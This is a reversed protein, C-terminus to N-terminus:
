NAGMRERIATIDPMAPIAGRKECCLAAAAAAFTLYGEFNQTTHEDLTKGSQIVQYLFSGLFVDGAGTTDVADCPAAPIQTIGQPTAALAGDAGFTVLVCRVGQALLAKAAARPDPHGTLLETEEDSIKIIDALGIASRMGQVADNQSRWLAPRYNPDYSIIAGAARAAKVAHFTATRAPEDTLSLSGFHFIKTSNVIDMDLEPVDITTDAGPKRAFSFKREAGDLSVFALTTFVDASSVVGKVDVGKARLVERLFDGHMDAGVKGIFAVSLGLVAAMVAVNAPAGGPNQEFLANGGESKSHYTFDILTEGMTVLDYM